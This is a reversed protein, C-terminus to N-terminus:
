VKSHRNERYSYLVDPFVCKCLNYNFWKFKLLFTKTSYKNRTNIWMKYWYKIVYKRIMLQIKIKENNKTSLYYVNM